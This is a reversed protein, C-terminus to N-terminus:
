QQKPCWSQRPCKHSLLCLKVSDQYRIPGKNDLMPIVHPNLMNRVAVLVLVFEDKMQLTESAKKM